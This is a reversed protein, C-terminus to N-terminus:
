LNENKLADIPNDKKVKRMAYMMTAFVVLFVSLVAIGIAAWPLHFSTEYATTVARYILYTIGCSVPLGLLLAKSGYLLCEYNMMRRFGKQTMGVSKLMAFERRRLSINTSITNFVNAVAILSILVIFGYAFVRIITVVNRNTEANAAYDFLQRSSLGNETLVTALNEFSATHNSSTLFYETNRFQNLAAEPIVSELMSYPYIMNIAVPTSRSVFFPAEEITKESRLTYKAFSEEYPLEIIDNENDRNQYLVVKNGNEDIRSDKRYYGDIEVYYLGEIVCGDGQLTDLTVYKELRRDLEINRDLAIGLPKDRDYYDAEKLNYKELLRNFEADAVFYLYGSIGLEKPAADESETGFSSFRDAFMATVYERSIDGQLFQKKTYTGGTVNPESFLLELLADPTMAASADSEAAYILDFQDSALGGEASEMMYDTFAAASVFLVISMFLSVVTTRYKKRNRKYHKGALVGPLGFLKYALKSTRVPRGSVKIDMSQRIAEVASVRTARKSPIWASILVTVLAIVAAIVVAQWSVCLRMPIAVRVISFFKDGILLLTIGIGGIGVLIGLPIGVISVALAEFLVMRRLQKRTAGVSSLLGFQRTRESVSISFANYILSVSGFVILAIIIAALSYFATLFSDFPATGSYLLVKTNYAYRYEQTYGMEKMFDYVGAPKHLKFYCHIPAQDASKTDAATLATYGPASYDEFTPREYIGVVTYTRPETNELREGSMIEVQTESDYTYVPTDQGLRRGDLTRDGVDLTVTDGLKYNVKGNSTLHEPLIIETSDKPLTGLILHVPMTKFYGSAVDGGLVYLYPKRENASDIKAYGLVQAYAASSVKGSDRIDEYDKYAADYVAGHWDGSSYIECRLVFNQMSSVFTTSACIMAASLMIGIITVVTRTRNKKLSELTVKSFVNM